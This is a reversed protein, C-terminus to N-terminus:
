GVLVRSAMDALLASCNEDFAIRFSEVYNDIHSNQQAITELNKQLLNVVLPPASYSESIASDTQSVTRELDAVAKQFGPSQVTQSSVQELAQLLARQSLVVRGMADNVAVIKEATPPPLVVYGLNADACLEFFKKVASATDFVVDNSLVKISTDAIMAPDGKRRKLKNAKYPHQKTGVRQV